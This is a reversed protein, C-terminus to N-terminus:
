HECEMKCKMLYCCIDVLLQDFREWEPLHLMTLAEQDDRLNHKELSNGGGFGASLILAVFWICIVGADVSSDSYRILYM